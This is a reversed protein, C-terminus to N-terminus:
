GIGRGFNNAYLSRKNTFLSSNICFVQLVIKNFENNERMRNCFLKINFTVDVAVPQPVKYVDAGKRQGDWTPVTFYDIRYKEPINM